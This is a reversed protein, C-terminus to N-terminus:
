VLGSIMQLLTKLLPLAVFLAAAAGAIEVSSAIGKSDADDCVDAALKTIIGIGACKLMPSVLAASLGMDRMALEVLERIGGVLELAFGLVLAGIGLTLILSLEPNPRKIVLALLAGIIGIVAAKILIEM